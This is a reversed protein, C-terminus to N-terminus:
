RLRAFENAIFARRDNPNPKSAPASSPSGSIQVAANKATVVQNKAQSAAIMAAQQESLISQYVAKDLRCAADYAAKLKDEPEMGALDLGVTKPSELIAAIRESVAEYYKNAPDAEFKKIATFVVKNRQETQAAVLEQVQQNLYSVQPDQQSQPPANGSLVGQLDEPSIRYQQMISAVAQAKQVPTGTRFLSATQLLQRIATAPTGGENRLLDQYPKFENLLEDAQQAKIKLPAVGKEHDAERRAVIEALELPTKDWHQSLEPTIWKPMAPRVPAPAIPTTPDSVTAPSSSTVFKGTQQDRPRTPSLARAASGKEYERKIFERRDIPESPAEPTPELAPTADTSIPAEIPAIEDKLVTSM